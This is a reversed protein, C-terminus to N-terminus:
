EEAAVVSRVRAAGKREVLEALALKARAEDTGLHAYAPLYSAGVGLVCVKKGSKAHTICKSMGHLERTVLFRFTQGDIEYDFAAFQEVEATKGKSTPITVTTGPLSKSM